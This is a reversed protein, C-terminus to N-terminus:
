TEWTALAGEPNTANPAGGGAPYMGVGVSKVTTAIPVQFAICGRTSVGPDLLPAQPFVRFPYHIAPCGDISTIGPLLEFDHYLYGNVMLDLNPPGPGGINGVAQPGHNSISIQVGIWRWGSSPIAPIGPLVSDDVPPGSDFVRTVGIVLIQPSAADILASLTATTGVPVVKGTYPGHPGNEPLEAVTTAISSGKAVKSNSPPEQDDVKGWPSTYSYDTSTTHMRLGVRRLVQVAKTSTLGIVNPVSIAKSELTSSTSTSSSNACGALGIAVLIVVLQITLVSRLRLDRDMRLVKVGNRGSQGSRRIQGGHARSTRPATM